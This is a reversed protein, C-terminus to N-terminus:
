CPFSTRLFVFLSAQVLFQNQIFSMNSVNDNLLVTRTLYSSSLSRLFLCRTMVDLWMLALALQERFQPKLMNVSTILVVFFIVASVSTMYPSWLHLHLLMKLDENSFM